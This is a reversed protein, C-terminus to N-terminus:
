QCKVEMYLSDYWSLLAGLGLYVSKEVKPLDEASCLECICELAAQSHEIDGVAHVDFFIPNVSSCALSLQKSIKPMLKPYLGERAYSSALGSILSSRYEMELAALLIATGVHIAPEIEVGLSEATLKALSYHSQQHVKAEPYYGDEESMVSLLSRRIKEDHCLGYRLGTIRPIEAAFHLYQGVVFKAIELNSMVDVLPHALIRFALKETIHDLHFRVDSSKLIEVRNRIFMQFSVTTTPNQSSNRELTILAQNFDAFSM